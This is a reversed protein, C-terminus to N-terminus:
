FYIIGGALGRVPFREIAAQATDVGARSAVSYITHRTTGFKSAIEDVHTGGTLQATIEAAHSSVDKRPKHLGLRKAYRDITTQTTGMARAISAMNEGSSLRSRIEEVQSESFLDSAPRRGSTGGARPTVGLRLLATRVTPYSTGFKEAIKPM